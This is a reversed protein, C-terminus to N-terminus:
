RKLCLRIPILLASLQAASPHLERDSDAGNGHLDMWEDLMWKLSVSYGAWALSLPPCSSLLLWSVIKCICTDSVCNQFLVSCLARKLCYKLCAQPLITCVCLMCTLSRLKNSLAVWVFHRIWVQCMPLMLYINTGQRGSNNNIGAGM